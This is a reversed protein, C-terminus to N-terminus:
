ESTHEESREAAKKMAADIDEVIMTCVYGSVPAGIAPAPGKRRVLGGNISNPAGKACTMVGWYEMGPMDYKVIEWGFLAKYFEALKEPESAHIEFHVLGNM